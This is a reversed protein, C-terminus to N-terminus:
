SKDGHKVIFKDQKNFGILVSDKYVKKIQVDGVVDGEDLLYKKGDIKIIGTVKTEKNNSINGYYTISPWLVGNQTSQKISPVRSTTKKKGQLAGQKNYSDKKLFPDPYELKLKYTNNKVPTLPSSESIAVTTEPSNPRVIRYIRFAVFCWIFGVAVILAIKKRDKM